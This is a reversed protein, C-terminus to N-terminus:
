ALHSIDLWLTYYSRKLTIWFSNHSRPLYSSFRWSFQFCYRCLSKSVPLEKVYGALTAWICWIINMVMNYIRLTLKRIYIYLSPWLQSLVSSVSATPCRNCVYDLCDILCQTFPWLLYNISICATATPCSFCNRIFLVDLVVAWIAALM